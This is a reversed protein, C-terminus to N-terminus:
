RLKGLAKQLDVKSVLANYLANYYNIQAERLSTEAEIVELNSGVGEAYKISAVRAIESALEMNEKQSQLLHVNNKLNIRQERVQVDITNALAKLDNESKKLTM